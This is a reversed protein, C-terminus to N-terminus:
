SSDREDESSNNGKSLGSGIAVLGAVVLLFPVLGRMVAGFDAWWSIVGFIGLVLAVLGVV